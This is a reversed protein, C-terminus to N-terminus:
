KFERNYCYGLSRNNVIIKVFDFDIILNKELLTLDIVAAIFAAITSEVINTGLFSFNIKNNRKNNVM